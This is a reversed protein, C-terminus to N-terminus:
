KVVNKWFTRGDDTTHISAMLTFTHLTYLVTSIARYMMVQASTICIELFNDAKILPQNKQKKTDPQSSEKWPFLKM